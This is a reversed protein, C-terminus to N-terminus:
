HNNFQNYIRMVDQQSMGKQQALQMAIQQPSAGQTSNQIQSIANRVNPNSTMLSQLLAQPNKSNSFMQMLQMPNINNM